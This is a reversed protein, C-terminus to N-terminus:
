SSILAECIRHFIAIGDEIIEDPFDYEPSHLPPTNKGSGLGFMAGKYLKTFHAFDESSRFPESLGTIKFHNERAIKEILTVCSKDNILSPFEEAYEFNYELKEEVSVKSVMKQIKKLLLDMDENLASRLTLM